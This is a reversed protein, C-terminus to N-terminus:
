CMSTKKKKKYKSTTRKLLVYFLIQPFFIDAFGGTIKDSSDIKM